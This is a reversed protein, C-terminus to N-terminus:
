RPEVEAGLAKAHTEYSNRLGVFNVSAARGAGLVSGGHVSALFNKGQHQSTGPVRVTMTSPPPVHPKSPSSQPPPV